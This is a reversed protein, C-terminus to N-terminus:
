GAGWGPELGVFGRVDVTAADFSSDFACDRRVVGFVDRRCRGVPGGGPFIYGASCGPLDLPRAPHRLPARAALDQCLFDAAEKRNTSNLGPPTDPHPAPPPPMAPPLHHHQRALTPRPNPPTTPHPRPRNNRLPHLSPPPHDPTFAHTHPSSTTATSSRHHHHHPGRSKKCNPTRRLSYSTPFISVPKNYSTVRYMSHRSDQDCPRSISELNAGRTKSSPWKLDVADLRRRSYVNAYHLFLSTGALAM